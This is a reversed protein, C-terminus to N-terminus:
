YEILIFSKVGKSVGNADDADWAGFLWIYQQYEQFNWTIWKCARCDSFRQVDNGTDRAIALPTTATNIKWFTL